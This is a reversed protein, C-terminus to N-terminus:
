NSRAACLAADLETMLDAVSAIRDWAAPSLTVNYFRQDFQENRVKAIVVTDLLAFGDKSGYVNPEISTLYDGITSVSVVRDCESSPAESSPAYLVDEGRSIMKAFGAIGGIGIAIFAFLAVFGKAQSIRFQRRAKPTLRDLFNPEKYLAVKEASSLSHFDNIKTKKMKSTKVARAKPTADGYNIPLM